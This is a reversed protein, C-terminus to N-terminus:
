KTLSFPVYNRREAAAEAAHEMLKERSQNVVCQVTNVHGWTDCTACFKNSDVKEATGCQSCGVLNEQKAWTRYCREHAEHNCPLQYRAWLQTEGDLCLASEAILCLSCRWPQSNIIPKVYEICENCEDAAYIHSM